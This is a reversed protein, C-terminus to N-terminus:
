ERERDRNPNSKKSRIQIRESTSYLRTSRTTFNRSVGSGGDVRRSTRPEECSNLVCEGGSMVVSVFPFPSQRRYLWVYTQESNDLTLLTREAIQHSHTHFSVIGVSAMRENQEFDIRLSFSLFLSFSLSLSHFPFFLFHHVSDLFGVYPPSQIPTSKLIVEEKEKKSEEGEVPSDSLDSWPIHSLIQAGTYLAIRELDHALIHTFVGIQTQQLADHLMASLGWQLFVCKVDFTRLWKVVRRIHTRQIEESEVMVNKVAHLQHSTHIRGVDLTGSMVIVKLQLV